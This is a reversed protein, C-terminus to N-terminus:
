LSTTHAESIESGGTVFIFLEKLTQSYSSYVVELTFTPRLMVVHYDEPPRLM